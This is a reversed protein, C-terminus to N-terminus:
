RWDYHTQLLSYLRENHPEFFEALQDRMKPDIKPYNGQLRAGFQNPRWPPLELFKLVQELIADPKKFFDESKVVLLRERPIFNMVNALQDAYIGRSLLSWKYYNHYSYDEDRRLKELEQIYLKGGQEEKISEEFSPFFKDPNVRAAWDKRYYYDSYAREVPNRLLAIVKVGPLTESIRRPAHPHFMYSVTSEFTAFSHRRFRSYWVKRLKTPFYSRYWSLRRKFKLDFFSLEKIRSSAVCPHMGLITHLTTTGCKQGGIILFDPLVRISNTLKYYRM